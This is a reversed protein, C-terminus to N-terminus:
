TKNATAACTGSANSKLAKLSRHFSIDTVGLANAVATIDRIDPPLEESGVEAYVGSQLLAYCVAAYPTLHDVAVQAVTRQADFTYCITFM